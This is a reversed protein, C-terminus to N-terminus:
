QRCPFSVAQKSIACRRAHPWRLRLEATAHAVEPHHECPYGHQENKEDQEHFMMKMTTSSDKRKRRRAATPVSAQFSAWQDCPSSAWPAFRMVSSTQYFLKRRDPSPLTSIRQVVLRAREGFPITSFGPVDIELALIVFANQLENVQVTAQLPMLLGKVIRGLARAGEM